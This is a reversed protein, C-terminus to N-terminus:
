HGKPHEDAKDCFCVKVFHNKCVRAAAIHGSPTLFPLSVPTSQPPGEHGLHAALTVQVTSLSQKLLLQTVVVVLMVLVVVFVVVLTVVLTQAAPLCARQTPPCVKSNKHM